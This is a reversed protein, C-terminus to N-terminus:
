ILMAEEHVWEQKFKELLCDLIGIDQLYNLIEDSYLHRDLIYVDEVTLSTSMDDKRCQAQLIYTGLGDLSMKPNQSLSVLVQYTEGTEDVFSTTVKM